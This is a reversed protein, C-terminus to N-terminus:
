LDFKSMICSLFVCKSSVEDLNQLLIGGNSNNKYVIAMPRM